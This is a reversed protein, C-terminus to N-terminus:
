EWSTGEGQWRRFRKRLSRVTVSFVMQHRKVRLLREKEKEEALTYLQLDWRYRWTRRTQGKCWPWWGWLRRWSVWPLYKVQQQMLNYHSHTCLYLSGWVCLNEKRFHESIGNELPAAPQQAVAANSFSRWWEISYIRAPMSNLQAEHWVPCFTSNTFLLNEGLFLFNYHSLLGSDRNFLASPLTRLVHNHKVPFKIFERQVSAAWGESSSRTACPMSSRLSIGAPEAYPMTSETLALEISQVNYFILWHYSFIHQILVFFFWIKCCQRTQQTEPEGFPMSNLETFSTSSLTFATLDMCLRWRHAKVRPWASTETWRAM